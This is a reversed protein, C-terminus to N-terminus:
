WKNKRAGKGGKLWQEADRRAKTVEPNDPYTKLENLWAQIDESTSYPGVPPDIIMTQINTM